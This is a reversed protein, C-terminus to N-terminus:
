EKDPFYFVQHRAICKRAREPIATHGVAVSMLPRAGEPLSLMSFYKGYGPRKSLERIFSYVIVSGLGINAAELHIHEAMIAANFERDSGAGPMAFLLFLLPAHYIPDGRHTLEDNEEALANLIKPDEIVAIACGKFDAHGAPAYEAADILKQRDEKSVKEATFRRISRRITLLKEFDM